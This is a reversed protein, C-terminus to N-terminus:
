VGGQGAVPAPSFISPPLQAMGCQLMCEEHKDASLRKTLFDAPQETTKVYLPLIVGYDNALERVFGMPLTLNVSKDHSKADVALRVAATNDNYLPTPGHQM